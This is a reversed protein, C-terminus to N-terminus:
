RATGYRLVKSVTKAGPKSVTVRLTVKKGTYAKKVLMARDRDVTRAGVKWAYAVKASSARTRTVKLTKGVKATTAGKKSSWSRIAIASDSNDDLIEECSPRPYRATMIGSLVYPDYGPHVITASWEFTKGIRRNVDNEVVLDAPQGDASFHHFFGAYGPAGEDLAHRRSQVVQGCSSWTVDTYSGAPILGNPARFILHAMSIAYENAYDQGFSQSHVYFQQEPSVPDAQAPAAVGLVAIALTVSALAAVLRAKMHEGPHQPGDPGRSTARTTSVVSDSSM